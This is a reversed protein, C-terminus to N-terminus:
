SQNLETHTNYFLQLQKMQLHLQQPPCKTEQLLTLWAMQCRKLESATRCQTIQQILNKAILGGYRQLTDVMMTQLDSFSALTDLHPVIENPPTITQIQKTSDLLPESSLPHDVSVTNESVPEPVIQTQTSPATIFGLDVLSQILEPTCLRQRQTVPLKEFDATGILFLLQRQKASLQRNRQQLADNGMATKIYFM